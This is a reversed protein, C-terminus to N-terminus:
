SAPVIELVVRSSIGLQDGFRLEVPQQPALRYQNVFTGNSSGLDTVTVVGQASVHLRAHQGSVTPGELQIDAGPQAGVVFSGARLPKDCTVSSQPQSVLRVLVPTISEKLRAMEAEQAQSRAFADRQGAEAQRELRERQSREQEIRGHLVAQQAEAAQAREQEARKTAEVRQRDRKRMLSWALLGVALIGLGGAAMPVYDRLTKRKQCSGERCTCAKSCETDDKCTKDQCHGATCTGCPTCDEALSCAAANTAPTAAGAGACDGFDTPPIVLQVVPESRSRGLIQTGKVVQMDVMLGAQSEYKGCLKCATRDLNAYLVGLNHLTGYLHEGLEQDAVVSRFEGNTDNTAQLMRARGQQGKFLQAQTRAKEGARDVHVAAVPIGRRRAEAIFTSLNNSGENDGVDAPDIGDSILIVARLRSDVADLLSLGVNATGYIDAGSGAPAQLGDLFATVAVKDTTAAQKAPGRERGPSDILAVQDGTGTALAELVFRRVGARLAETYQGMGSKETGGRDLVILTTLQDGGRGPKLTDSPLAACDRGGVKVKVDGGVAGTVREHYLYLQQSQLTVKRIRFDNAHAPAVWAVGVLLAVGLRMVRAMWRIEARQRMAQRTMAM